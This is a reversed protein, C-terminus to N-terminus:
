VGGHSLIRTRAAAQRAAAPRRPESSKRYALAKAPAQPLLYAVPVAGQPSKSQSLSLLQIVDPVLCAALPQRAANAGTPGLLLSRSQRNTVFKQGISRRRHWVVAEFRLLLQTTNGYTRWWAFATQFASRGVIQLFSVYDACKKM